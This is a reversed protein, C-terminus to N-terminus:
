TQNQFVQSTVFGEGEVVSFPYEDLIIMKALARRCAEASFKTDDQLSLKRRKEHDTFPCNPCRYQL